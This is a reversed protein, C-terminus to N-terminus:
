KGLESLIEDAAREGSEVAGQLYGQNDISTHEGAFHCHDEPEGEVGAFKTYQGVRWYSYSGLTWPNGPWYDVTALGNWKAKIGPLVPDVQDLFQMAREAPTGSAFSWATLGGTYDNLIGAVGPQARTVEWSCQYGTDAYTEGSCGLERWHRDAFQLQLKTNAGMGLEQIATVKLPRFGAQSFDVASRLISFPLALVVEDAEVDLATSDKRFTLTYGGVANRRIAELVHGVHIQGALEASLRAPIQDNGGRVHYKENSPGFIRLQGPGIYGLLYLLNLSSQDSSEAGYEINYAVDLLQGLRSTIGGEVSENIWEVISMHDLEWGRETYNNYLTPYSAASVDKHIKQWIKKLDDTAEDYSYPSGDFYYFPETGNAEAQLLNDLDLGLEQALQRTETHGQDILEGGHEIIQGEAFYGRGTWCRGGTRTSAEYVQALYGGQKLRYACVLGALGAGVVAVRPTSAGTASRSGALGAAAAAAGRLFTRRTLPTAARRNPGVEPTLRERERSEDLRAFLERLRRALLTRAV